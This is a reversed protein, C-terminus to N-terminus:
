GYIKIMKSVMTWREQWRRTVRQVRQRLRQVDRRQIRSTRSTRRIRGPTGHSWSTEIPFFFVIISIGQNITTLPYDHIHNITLLLYVMNMHIHNITLPYDNISIAQNVMHNIHIHSLMWLYPYIIYGALQSTEIRFIYRNPKSM